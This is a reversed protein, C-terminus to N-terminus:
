RTYPNYTSARYGTVHAKMAELFFVVEFFREMVGSVNVRALASWYGAGREFVLVNVDFETIKAAPNQKLVDEVVLAKVEATLNQYIHM